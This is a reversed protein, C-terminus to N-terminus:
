AAAKSASFGLVTKEPVNIVEEPKQPNRYARAARKKMKFSGFNRIVVSDGESTFKTITTFVERVASEADKKSLGTAVQVTEVVDAIGAM